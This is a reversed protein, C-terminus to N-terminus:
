LSPPSSNGNTVSPTGISALSPSPNKPVSKFSDVRLWKGYQGALIKQLNADETRTSCLKELHGVHSYYFCFSALKEYKFDVWM